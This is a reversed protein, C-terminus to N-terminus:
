PGYEIIEDTARYTSKCLLDRSIRDGNADWRIKYAEAKYGIKGKQAVRTQGSALEMSPQMVTEYEVEGTTVGEVTISEGNPLKKGFIGFRVRKNDTLYCAIYIDDDTTNTFRLDQSGWNVAADKGKDVYSVTLSHNHREVIKMDAKVAANFLTTSVQCIGGGVDEVVKGSAYATALKFGRDTTRKGVVDNFSFTEGPKLRTGHIFKLAQRINALRNSNSSSANTVAEAIMGYEGAIDAKGVEPQIANVVLEVNGGGADLAAAMDQALRARDLKSGVEEDAFKFEYTDMDFSEIHANRAPRDIQKAVADVCQDIVDPDYATRSVNYSAPQNKRFSLAEYREVLSGSRGAGWATSLISAYDSSYGLEAATFQAGNNLTVTRQAYNPEVNTEWHALAEELTMGSVDVGEVSVGEYFTTRDVAAKMVLFQEYQRHQWAGLGTVGGIMILLAVTVGLAKSRRKRAPRRRSTAELFKDYDDKGNAVHLVAQGKAAPKKKASQGTKKVAAGKKVPATKKNEAQAPRKGAAAPKKVVAPKKEAASRKKPAAAEREAREAAELFADYDDRKPRKAPAPRKATGGTSRTKKKATETM